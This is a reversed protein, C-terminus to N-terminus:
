FLMKKLFSTCTTKLDWCLVLMQRSKEVLGNCLCCLVTWSIELRLVLTIDTRNESSFWITLNHMKGHEFKMVFSVDMRKVLGYHGSISFHQTKNGCWDSLMISVGPSRYRTWTDAVRGDDYSHTPPTQRWSSSTRTRTGSPNAATSAWWMTRYMRWWSRRVTVRWRWDCCSEAFVLTTLTKIKYIEKFYRIGIIIFSILSLTLNGNYL